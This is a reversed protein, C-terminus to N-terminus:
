FCVAANAPRASVLARRTSSARESRDGMLVVVVFVFCPFIWTKARDGDRLWDINGTECWTTADGGGGHNFLSPVALWRQMFWMKLYKVNVGVLREGCRM